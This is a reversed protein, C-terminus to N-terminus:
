KTANNDKGDGQNIIDDLRIYYHCEGPKDDKEPLFWGMEAMEALNDIQEKIARDRMKEAFHWSDEISISSYFLQEETKVRNDM